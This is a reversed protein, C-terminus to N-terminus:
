KKMWDYIRTINFKNSNNDIIIDKNNNLTNNKKRIIQLENKM